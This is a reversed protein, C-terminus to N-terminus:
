VSLCEVPATASGQAIDQAYVRRTDLLRYCSLKAIRLKLIVGLMLDTHIM